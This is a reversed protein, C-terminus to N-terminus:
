EFGGSLQIANPPMWYPVGNIMTPTWGMAQHDRHDGSCTLAGEDVRTRHTTQWEPVHISRHV